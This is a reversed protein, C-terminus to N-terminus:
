PPQLGHLSLEVIGVSLDCLICLNVNNLAILINECLCGSHIMFSKNYIYLMQLVPTTHRKVNKLISDISSLLEIFVCM